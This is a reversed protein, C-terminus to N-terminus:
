KEIRPKELRITGGADGNPGYDVVIKLKRAGQVSLRIDLDTVSGNQSNTHQDSTAGVGSAFVQRMLEKDDLLIRMLASGQGVDKSLRARTRLLLSDPPIRWTM